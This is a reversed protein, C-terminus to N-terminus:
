GQPALSQLAKYIEHFNSAGTFETIRAGDTWVMGVAVNEFVRGTAPIEVGGITVPGAHTAEWRYRWAVATPSEEIVHTIHHVQPKWTEVERVWSPLADALRITAAHTGMPTFLVDPSFVQRTVEEFRGPDGSDWAPYWLDRILELATHM